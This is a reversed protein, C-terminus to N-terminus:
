VLTTKLYYVDQHNKISQPLKEILRAGARSSLKSYSNLRGLVVIVLKDPVIVLYLKIKSITM